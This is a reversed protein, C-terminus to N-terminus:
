GSGRRLADRAAAVESTSRRGLFLDVCSTLEVTIKPFTLKIADPKRLAPNEVRPLM